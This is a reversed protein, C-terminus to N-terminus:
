FRNGRNINNKKELTPTNIEKLSQITKKQSYTTIQLDKVKEKLEEIQNDKEKIIDEYFKKAKEKALEYLDNISKTFISVISTRLNHKSDLIDFNQKETGFLGTKVTLNKNTISKNLVQDLDDKLAINQELERHHIPKSNLDNDNTKSSNDAKLDIIEIEKLEVVSKLHENEKKYAEIKQYLAEIEEPSKSKNTATNLRHLEKKQETSLNELATIQKQTTRFSYELEKIKEKLQQNEQELEKTYEREKAVAKYQKHELRVAKSNIEGREMNLLEAVETQLESLVSPKIYEKRWRQKEDKLTVFNLHAHYNYIVKGADNIYGEDRHISIACNTINFKKEIHEAVKKVDELNHNENLNLVAEWHSNEFTPRKGVGTIKKLEDTFIEKATKEHQWFENQKQLNKPLLYNPKDKRFNHEYSHGTAKQFNISSKAM